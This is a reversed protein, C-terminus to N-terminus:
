NCNSIMGCAGNIDLGMSERIFCKYGAQRLKEKFEECRKLNSSYYKTRNVEFLCNLQILNFNTYKGLNFEILKDLDSDRDTLGEIMLYEIMIKQKNKSNYHKSIQILDDIKYNKLNPMILDRIEQDPSHLSLALQIKNRNKIIEQMKQIIGSTSITIKKYPYFYDEHLTEVSKLVNEYNLLPEGMGMFVISTIIEKLYREKLGNKSSIKDFIHLYDLSDYIQTLIEEPSLNEIFPTKGSLCFKCKIPCGVQSSICLTNKNNKSPILIASYGKHYNFKITGDISKEVSILTM